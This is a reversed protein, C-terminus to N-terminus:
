TFLLNHLIDSFRIETLNTEPPYVFNKNNKEFKPSIPSVEYLDSDHHRVRYVVLLYM